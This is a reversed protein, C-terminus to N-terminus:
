ITVTNSLNISMGEYSAQEQVIDEGLGESIQENDGLDAEDMNTSQTSPCLGLDNGSTSTQASIKTM